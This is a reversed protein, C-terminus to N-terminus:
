EFFQKLKEFILNKRNQIFKEFQDDTYSELKPVLHLDYYDNARNEEKLWEEFPTDGKAQNSYGLPQINAINNVIKKDYLKIMRTQSFMHDEQFDTLLLNGYIISLVLKSKDTNYQINDILDRLDESKRIIKNKKSFAKFLEEIPFFNNNQKIIDRADTLLSDSQGGFVGNLLVAYTYKKMFIFDKHTLDVDKLSKAYVYYILPIIANNSRLYKKSTIHINNLFNVIVQISEKIKNWNTKILNVNDKNFNKIQYRVDKDILMLSTKLIFDNDFEFKDRNIKTVFEKFEERADIKDDGKKWYQKIKSFLLDSYTLTVGGSNVRVFIELAEEDNKTSDIMYYSLIERALVNDLKQLNSGILNYQMDSSSIEYKTSIENTIPFVGFNKNLIESIRWWIKNSDKFYKNDNEFLKFEFIRENIEKEQIPSSLLNFYLYKKIKRNKRSEEFIGKFALNLITMRQQGDLVLICNKDKFHEKNIIENEKNCNDLFKLVTINDQDLNDYKIEWFLFTGIPYDRLLSDFLDYVKDEFKLKDDAWVFERQIEPLFYKENIDSVLKRISISEYKGM